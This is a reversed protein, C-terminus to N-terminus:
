RRADKLLRGASVRYELAGVPRSRMASELRRLEAKLAQNEKKLSSLADKV